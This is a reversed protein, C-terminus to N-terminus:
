YEKNKRLIVFDNESIEEFKEFLNEELIEQYLQWLGPIKNNINVDHMILYGGPSIKNKIKEYLIKMSYPIDLDLLAVDFYDQTVVFNEDILGKVLEFNNLGHNTLYFNVSDYDYNFKKSIGQEYTGDMCTAAVSQLGGAEMSYKCKLVENKPHGEFTDFGYVFGRESLVHCCSLLGGGYAVGFEAYNINHEFESMAKHLYKTIVLRMGLIALTDIM